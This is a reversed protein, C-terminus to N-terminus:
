RPPEDRPRSIAAAVFTAPSAGRCQRITSGKPAGTTAHGNRMAIYVRRNPRSAGRAGHHTAMVRGIPSSRIPLLARDLRGLPWFSRPTARCRPREPSRRIRGKRVTVRCPRLCSPVSRPVDLHESARAGLCPWPAAALEGPGPGFAESASLAHWRELHRCPRSPAPPPVHHRELWSRAAPSLPPRPKPQPGCTQRPTAVPESRRATVKPHCRPELPTSTPPPFAWPGGFGLETSPVLGSPVVAQHQYTTAIHPQASRHCRTSVGAASSPVAGETRDSVLALKSTHLPHAKPQGSGVRSM